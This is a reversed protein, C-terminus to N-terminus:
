VEFWIDGTIGVYGTAASPDNSQVYIRPTTRPSGLASGSTDTGGATINGYQYLKANEVETKTFYSTDHTHSDNVVSVTLTANSSGDISVSGTADGALTITRSSQWSSATSVNSDTFAITKTGGATSLKLVGANNWFDGVAPTTPDATGATFTLGSASSTAAATIIKGTLTGGSRQLATNALDYASKVSAPTAATTTSTSSVSDVLQVIGNHSTSASRITTETVSTILGKGNVTITPIATSTGFTGVSSNVTALTLTLTTAATGDFSAAPASGDGTISFNRATALATASSANGVLSATITGATFDGSSNRLVVTNPDNSATSNITITPSGSVGSANSVSLGTGSVAISLTSYTASGTRVLIGTATIAALATLDADLPQLDAHVHGTPLVPYMQQWSHTAASLTDGRFHLVGNTNDWYFANTNSTAATPPTASAGSLFIAGNDGISEFSETMQVRTFEDADDSWQTLNFRTTTSVTM